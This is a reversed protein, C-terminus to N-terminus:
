EAVTIVVFTYRIGSNTHGDRFLAQSRIDVKGKVVNPTTEDFVVAADGDTVESIM